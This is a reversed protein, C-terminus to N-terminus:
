SRARTGATGKGRPSRRTPVILPAGRGEETAAAPVPAADADGDSLDLSAVAAAARRAEPGNDDEDSSAARATRSKTRRASGVEQRGGEVQEDRQDDHDGQDDATTVKGRPQSSEGSRNPTAARETDGVNARAEGDKVDDEEGPSDADDLDLKRHVHGRRARRGEQARLPVDQEQEVDDTARRKSQVPSSHEGTSASRKAQPAPRQASSTARARKPQTGDDDSAPSARARKRPPEEPDEAASHEGDDRARRADSDSKKSKSRALLERRFFPEPVKCTALETARAVVSKGPMLMSFLDGYLKVQAPEYEVVAPTPCQLGNGITRYATATLMNRFVLSMGYLVRLAKSNYTLLRFPDTAAPLGAWAALVSSVVDLMNIVHPFSHVQTGKALRADSSSAASPANLIIDHSVYLKLERRQEVQRHLSKNFSTAHVKQTNNILSEQISSVQLPEVAAHAQVWRLLLSDDSVTISKFQSWRVFLYGVCEMFDENVRRRRDRFAKQMHDYLQATIYVAIDDREPEAGNGIALRRSYDPTNSNKAEHRRQGTKVHTMTIFEEDGFPHLWFPLDDLVVDRSPPIVPPYTKARALTVAELLLHRRFVSARKGIGTEYETKEKNGELSFLIAAMCKYADNISFHEGESYDWFHKITGAMTAHTWLEPSFYLQLNPVRDSMIRNYRGMAGTGNQRAAEKKVVTVAPNPALQQELQAARVDALLVEINDLKSRVDSMGLVLARVDRAVNGDSQRAVTSSDLSPSPPRPAGKGVVTRRPADLPPATGGSTGKRSGAPFRLVDDHDDGDSAAGMQVSPVVKVQRARARPNSREQAPRPTAPGDDDREQSQRPRVVPIVRAVARAKSPNNSREEQKPPPAPQIVDDLTEDDSSPCPQAAPLPQSSTQGEEQSARAVPASRGDADHEDDQPPDNDDDRGSPSALAAPSGPQSTSAPAQSSRLPRVPGDDDDDTAPQVDHAPAAPRVAVKKKFFSSKKPVDKKAPAKKKKVAQSGSRKPAAVPADAKDWHDHDHAEDHVASLARQAAARTPRAGNSPSAAVPPAGTQSSSPQRKPM